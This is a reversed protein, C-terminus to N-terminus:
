LHHNQTSPHRDNNSTENMHYNMTYNTYIHDANLPLVEMHVTSLSRKPTIPSVTVLMVELENCKPCSGSKFGLLVRHIGVITRKTVPECYPVYHHGVFM